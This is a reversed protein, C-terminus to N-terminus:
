YDGLAPTEAQSGGPQAGAQALRKHIARLQAKDFPTTARPKSPVLEIGRLRQYLALHHHNITSEIVRHRALDSRHILERLRDGAPAVLCTYFIYKVEFITLQSMLIRWYPRRAELTPLEAEIQELLCELTGLYRTQRTLIRQAEVFLKYDYVKQDEPDGTELFHNHRQLAGHLRKILFILAGVGDHAAGTKHDVIRIDDLNQRYYGLLRYFSDEFREKRFTEKSEALEHRQLYITLILGAFALGSFVTNIVGFSEGFVGSRTLSFDRIPWNIWLILGAYLLPIGLVLSFLVLAIRSFRM